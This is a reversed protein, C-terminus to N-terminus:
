FKNPWFFSTVHSEHNKSVNLIFCILYQPKGHCLLIIYLLDLTGCVKLNRFHETFAKKTKIKFSMKLKYCSRWLNLFFFYCLTLHYNWDKILIKYQYGIKLVFQFSVPEMLSIYFGILSILM